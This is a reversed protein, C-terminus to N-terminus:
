TIVRHRAPSGRDLDHGRGAKALGDELMTSMGSQRAVGVMTQADAAPSHLARFTDDVRMVEFIGLRGRYGSGGCADCGAPSHYSASGDPILGRSACLERATRAIEPNPRRCRECLRRVLRQGLVGRLSSGILYPEVGMDALRVIADTATNTHLTTLVLHGTLAAQIGIAATERDRMEGVM